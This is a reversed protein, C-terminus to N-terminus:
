WGLAEANVAAGVRGTAAFEAVAAAVLAASTRNTEETDGGFHTTMTVNDLQRWPSDEALPEADFVDLGAGAIQGTSLAEYLADTDVLRSRAVNVFYAGPKMLSFQKAGIFRETEPTHRAQVVVCDSEAFIEDLTSVRTVGPHDAGYPDYALLRCEFGSLKKAFHKGVHGFGVMGVTRGGLEVRPGPFEKRWGGAKISADARSIDRAEALILGIQLEAVASANRGYVGVVGVGRATAAEVDINELGTRAVAVLKLDPAADFLRAGVPAFHVCLVEADSVASLVEEPAAVANAGSVEMIQQAAHQSRKDGPLAISRVDADPVRAGLEEVFDCEPIFGDGVVQVRM